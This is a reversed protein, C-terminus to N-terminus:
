SSRDGPFHAGYRLLVAATEAAHDPTLVVTDHDGDVLHTEFIGTCVERWQRTLAAHKGPEANPLLIVTPGSYCRPRYRLMARRNAISVKLRRRMSAPDLLVPDDPGCSLEMFERLRDADIVDAHRM